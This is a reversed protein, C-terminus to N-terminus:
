GVLQVNKRVEDPLRPGARPASQDVRPAAAEGVLEVIVRMPTDAPKGDDVMIKETWGMRAKEWWEIARMDGAQIKKIHQGIVLTNIKTAGIAVERRYYKRFTKIAKIGIYEAIAEQVIGGATMLEVTQRTERTPVHPQQRAQIAPPNAKKATM